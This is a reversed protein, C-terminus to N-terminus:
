VLCVGTVCSCPGPAGPGEIFLGSGGGSGGILIPGSSMGGSSLDPSPSFSHKSGDALTLTLFSSMFM